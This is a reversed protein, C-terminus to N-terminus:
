WEMDPAKMCAEFAKWFLMPVVEEEMATSYEDEAEHEVTFLGYLEVRGRVETYEPDYWLRVKLGDREYEVDVNDKNKKERCKYAKDGVPKGYTYMNNLNELIDHLMDMFQLRRTTKDKTDM